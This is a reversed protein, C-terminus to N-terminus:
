KKAVAILSLGFFAPIIKEIGELVPMIRNYLLLQGESIERSFNGKRKLVRGKIFYPVVAMMNMHKIREVHFGTLELKSRLEKKKYRRFHLSAKDMTGLLCPHAPVKILLRGGPVLNRYFTKLATMDDQLHELVDLNIITDINLSEFNSGKEDLLDCFSVEVKAEADFRAHLAELNQSTYETALLLDANATLMSSVHGVGAGADWIRKGIYPNFNNLVWRYYSSLCGMRFQADLHQSEVEQSLPM